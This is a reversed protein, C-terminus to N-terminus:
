AACSICRTATPLARLRKPDIDGGCQSCVGYTGESIRKLAEGIQQIERIESIGISELADQNELDTAQDESDAPLPKRLESDIEAVRSTLESLRIKLAKAVDEHKNMDPPMRQRNFPADLRSGLRVTRQRFAINAKGGLRINPLSHGTRKPQRGSQDAASNPGSNSSSVTLGRTRTLFHLVYRWM